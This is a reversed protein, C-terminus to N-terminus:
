SFCGVALVVYALTILISPHEGILRIFSPHGSKFQISAFASIWAIVFLILSIVFVAVNPAHLSM